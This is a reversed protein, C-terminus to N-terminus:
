TPFPIQLWLNSRLNIEWKSSAIILLLLLLSLNNKGGANPFCAGRRKICYSKKIARQDKQTCQLPHHSLDKLFSYTTCFIPIFYHHTITWSPISERRTRNWRHIEESFQMKWWHQQGDASPSSTRTPWKIRIKFFQTEPPITGTSFASPLGKLLQHMKFALPIQLEICKQLHVFIHTDSMRGKWHHKHLHTHECADTWIYM